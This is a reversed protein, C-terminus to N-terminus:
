SYVHKVLALLEDGNQPTGAPPPERKPSKKTGWAAVFGATHVFWGPLQETLRRLDPSHYGPLRAIGLGTEDHFIACSVGYEEGLIRHVLVGGDKCRAVKIEGVQFIEAGAAIRRARVMRREKAVLGRIIATMHHLAAEDVERDTCGRESAEIKLGALIDGLSFRARASGLTDQEDIEALLNAPADHAEPMSCAAAHRTGDADLKGKEGLPHDLVRAGALSGECCPCTEPLVRAGAPVFHVDKVKAGAFAVCACADLDVHPHIVISTKTEM